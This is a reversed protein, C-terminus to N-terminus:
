TAENATPGGTCGHVRTGSGNDGRGDRVPVSWAHRRPARARRAVGVVNAPNRGLVRVRLHRRHNHIHPNRASTSRCRHGSAAPPTSWGACRRRRRRRSPSQDRPATSRSRLWTNTEGPAVRKTALQMPFTYGDYAVDCLLVANEPTDCPRADGIYRPARHLHRLPDRARRDAGLRRPAAPPPRAHRSRGPRWIGRQVEGATELRDDERPRSRQLAAASGPSRRDKRLASRQDLARGAARRPLLADRFLVTRPSPPPRPRRARDGPQSCPRNRIAERRAFAQGIQHSPQLAGRSPPSPRRLLRCPDLRRGPDRPLGPHAPAHPETAPVLRPRRREHRLRRRDRPSRRHRPHLHAWRAAASAFERGMLGAGIIAFRVVRM